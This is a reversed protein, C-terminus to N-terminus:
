WSTGSSSRGAYVQLQCIPSFSCAWNPKHKRPDPEVSRHNEMKLRLREDGDISEIM